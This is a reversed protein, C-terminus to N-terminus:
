FYRSVRNKYRIYSDGFESELYAEEGLIIFHHVVMGYIMILALLIDPIILFVASNLFFFSFYMPNRSYNYIGSTKLEHKGTPLGINTILGMKLYSPVIIFNAPILLVIAAIKQLESIEDIIILPTIKQYEPFLCVFAFFAWVIFLLFKGSIFFVPKITPKGMANKGNRAMISGLVLTAFIPLNALIALIIDLSKM